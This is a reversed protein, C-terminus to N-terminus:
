TFKIRQMEEMLQISAHFSEMSMILGEKRLRNKNSKSLKLSLGKLQFDLSFWISEPARKKEVIEIQSFNDEVFKNIKNIEKESLKL